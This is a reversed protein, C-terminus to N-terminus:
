YYNELESDESEYEDEEEIFLVVLIRMYTFKDLWSIEKFVEMLVNERIFNKKAFVFFFSYIEIIKTNIYIDVILM